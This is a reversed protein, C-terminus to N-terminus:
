EESRNSKMVDVLSIITWDLQKTECYNRLFRLTRTFLIRRMENYDVAAQAFTVMSSFLEKDEALQMCEQRYRLAPSEPVRRLVEKQQLQYEYIEQYTPYTTKMQTLLRKSFQVDKEKTEIDGWRLYSAHEAHLMIAEEETIEGVHTAELLGLAKNYLEGWSSRKIYTLQQLAAFPFKEHFLEESFVNDLGYAAFETIKGIVQELNPEKGEKLKKENEVLLLHCTDQTRRCAYLLNELYDPHACQEAVIEKPRKGEYRLLLYEKDCMITAKAEPNYLQIVNSIYLGYWDKFLPTFDPLYFLWYNRNQLPIHRDAMHKVSLLKEKNFDPFEESAFGTERITRQLYGNPM